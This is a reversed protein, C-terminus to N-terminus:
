EGLRYFRVANDHLIMQQEPLSYTSITDLALHFWRRYDAALNVVPWDSGFLVREPGFCDLIHEMYPRVQEVTWKQHDAETVVGSLKCHIDPRQALERIQSKWPEILGAAIAPKGMHDLIFSVQPCQDVLQLVDGLQTHYICLDFSFGFDPLGQVGRVFDSQTSFGLPESQILRRISKVLPLAQLAALEDRVAEGKQLPAHAVIGRIRPEEAALSTVWEAERLTHAPNCDAEVFVIGALEHSLEGRAKDLDGPFTPQSIAPAGSLWPYNITNPDWFHVHSDVYRSTM